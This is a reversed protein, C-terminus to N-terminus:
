GQNNQRSGCDEGRQSWQGSARGDGKLAISQDAGDLAVVVVRNRREQFAAGTDVTERSLIFVTPGGQFHRCEYPVDFDQLQQNGVFGFRISV